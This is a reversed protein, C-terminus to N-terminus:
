CINLKVHFHWVTKWFPQELKCAIQLPNQSDMIVGINPIKLNKGLCIPISPSVMKMKIKMERTKIINPVNVKEKIFHSNM